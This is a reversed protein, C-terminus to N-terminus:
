ENSPGPRFGVRQYLSTLLTMIRAPNFREMALDRGARGLASAQGPERMLVNIGSALALTNGPPVIIGTRGDQLWERVGGVDYALVPRALTQAELGALGFPEQWRSPLVLLRARRYLRAMDQHAAWGQFDIRKDLKLEKVRAAVAEDRTGAGAVVLRVHGDVQTLAELLDFIGKAWVIRGAFLVERGLGAPEQGQDLGHVFPPIIHIRTEDVGALTLEQKMYRGAVILATFKKVTELRARVLALLRVFYKEEKFCEACGLGFVQRCLSGDAKVKGRGPCFFRHDYVTMVAPGSEAIVQLLHPNLINHVHILGPKLKKIFDRLQEGVRTEAAFPAKHGLKKIFFLGAPPEHGALVSGDSWGFLGASRFGKPFSDLVSLLHQEAGGRASWRDHVHLILM